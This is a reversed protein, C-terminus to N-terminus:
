LCHIWTKFVFINTGSKSKRSVPILCIGGQKQKRCNLLFNDFDTMYVNLWERYEVTKQIIVKERFSYWGFANYMGYSSLYDLLVLEQAQRQFAVLGSKYHLRVIYPM